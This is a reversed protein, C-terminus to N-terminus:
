FQANKGEERIAMGGYEQDKILKVISEGELIEEIEYNAMMKYKNERIKQNM